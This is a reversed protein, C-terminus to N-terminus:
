HKNNRLRDLAAAVALEVDPRLPRQLAAELAQEAANGGLAALADASRVRYLAVYNSLFGDVYSSRDLALRATPRSSSAHARLAQYSRELGRRHLELSAPSPGDELTRIFTPVAANGLELVAALEGEVCEECELWRVIIRRMEEPAPAPSCGALLLGVALLLATARPTM